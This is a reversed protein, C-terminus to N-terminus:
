ITSDHRFTEWRRLAQTSLMAVQPPIGKQWGQAAAFIIGQSIERIPALCIALDFARGREALTQWPLAEIYAQRIALESPSYFEKYAGDIRGQEQDLTRADDLLRSLSFFPCGITAEEWDFILIQGDQDLTANDVQLDAHEITDPWGMAALENVWNAFRAKFSNLQAVFDDPIHFETLLWPEDKHWIHWQRNIIEQMVIAFQIPLATVQTRPIAALETMPVTAIRTQMQAFTTAIYCLAEVSLQASVRPASFPRYLMWAKDQWQQSFRLEPVHDPCHRMLLQDVDPGYTFLSLHSAKFIVEQENDEKPQVRFRAVVGWSKVQEIKTPGEVNVVEPLSTAIWARVAQVSLLNAPWSSIEM